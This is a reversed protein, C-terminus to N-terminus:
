VCYSAIFAILLLLHLLFCYICYSAIFAILLLLRVKQLLFRFDEVCISICYKNIISLLVEPRIFGCHESDAHKLQEKVVAFSKRLAERLNREARMTSLDVEKDACLAATSARSLGRVKSEESDVAEDTNVSSERIVKSKNKSKRILLEADKKAQYEITKLTDLLLAIDASKVEDGGLALYLNEADKKNSGLGETQLYNFFEKFTLKLPSKKPLRSFCKALTNNNNGCVRYICVALSPVNNTDFVVQPKASEVAPITGFKSYQVLDYFDIAGVNSCDLLQFINRLEKESFQVGKIQSFETLFKMYDISRSGNGFQVIDVAKLLRSQVTEVGVSPLLVNETVRRQKSLIIKSDTTVWRSFADFDVSGMKQSDFLKFIDKTEEKSIFVGFKVLVNQFDPLSIFRSDGPKIRRLASFLEQTTTCREQIKRRILDLKSEITQCFHSGFIDSTRSTAVTLFKTSEM